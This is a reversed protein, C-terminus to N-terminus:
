MYFTLLLAFVIVLLVDCILCTCTLFEANCHFLRLYVVTKRTPELFFGAQIQIYKDDHSMKWCCPRELGAPGKCAISSFLRPRTCTCIQLSTNTSRFLM